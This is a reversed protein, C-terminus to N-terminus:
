RTWEMKADSRLSGVAPQIQSVQRVCFGGCSLPDRFFGIGYAACIRSWFSKKKARAFGALGVVWSSYSKPSTSIQKYDSLRGVIKLLLSRVMSSSGQCCRNKQHRIKAMKRSINQFFFSRDCIGQKKLRWFYLFLSFFRWFDGWNGVIHVPVESKRSEYKSDRWIQSFTSSSRRWRLSMVFNFFSLFFFVQAADCFQFFVFVLFCFFCQM